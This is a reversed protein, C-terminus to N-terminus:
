HNKASQTVSVKKGAIELIGRRERGGNNAQITLTVTAPRSDRDVKGVQIWSASSSVEWPATQTCGSPVPTVQLTITQKTRGVNLEPQVQYSCPSATAPSPPRAQAQDKPPAEAPPASLSGAQNVVVTQGAITLSGTRPNTEHRRGKQPPGPGRKDKEYWAANSAVHITLTGPNTNRGAFQIEIWPDHSEAQWADPDTCGAPTPTVTLTETREGAPLNLIAPVQFDCRLLSKGAALQKVELAHGTPSTYIMGTRMAPGQNEAVIVSLYQQLGPNRSPIASLWPADSVPHFALFPNCTQPGVTAGPQNKGKVSVGYSGAQSDVYLIAPETFYICPRTGHQIIERRKGAVMVMGFRPSSDGNAPVTIKVAGGGAARTLDQVTIWKQAASASWSKGMCGSPLSVTLVQSGGDKSFVLKEPSVQFECGTTGEQTVRIPKGAVTITGTRPASGPNATTAIRFQGGSQRRITDRVTMWPNPNTVSWNMPACVTPQYAIRIIESEAEHSFSVAEPVEYTCPPATKIIGLIEVKVQHIKVYGSIGFDAEATGEGPIPLDPAQQSGAGTLLEVDLFYGRGSHIEGEFIKTAFSSQHGALGALVRTHELIAAEENVAGDDSSLIAKVTVKAAAIGFVTLSGKYEGEVTIRARAATEHNNGRFPMLTMGLSVRSRSHSGVGGAISVSLLKGSAPDVSWNVRAMKGEAKKRAEEGWWFASPLHKEGNKGQRDFERFQYLAGQNLNVIGAAGVQSNMAFVIFLATLIQGAKPKFM